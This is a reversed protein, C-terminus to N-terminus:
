QQHHKYHTPNNNARNYKQVLRAALEADKNQSSAKDLMRKIENVSIRM